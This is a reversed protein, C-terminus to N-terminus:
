GKDRLVILFVSNSASNHLCHIALWNRHILLIFLKNNLVSGPSPSLLHWIFLEPHSDWFTVVCLLLRNSEPGMSQISLVELHRSTNPWVWECSGGSESLCSVLDFRDRPVVAVDIKLLLGSLGIESLCFSGIQVHCVRIQFGVM